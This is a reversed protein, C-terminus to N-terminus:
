STHTGEHGTSEEFLVIAGSPNALNWRIGISFPMVDLDVAMVGNTYLVGFGYAPSPLNDITIWGFARFSSSRGFELELVLDTVTTNGNTVLGDIHWFTSLSQAHVSSALPFVVLVLVATFCAKKNFERGASTTTDPARQVQQSPERQNKYPSVILNPM